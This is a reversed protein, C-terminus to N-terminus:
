LRRKVSAGFRSWIHCAGEESVMCPGVPDLMTCTKEFLACDSPYSQGLVVTHCLCGKPVDSDATDELCVGYKARADFARCSESLFIGSDEVWGIARWFARGMRFVKDMLVQAARNGGPKVYRSYENALGAKGQELMRMIMELAALIDVPEFGAVAVPLHYKAPFRQWDQAGVIVAVHGPALLGDLVNAGPGGLVLAEVAPATLKLATLLSFNSPVQRAFLAAMPAATTEFGVAFLVFEREPEKLALEVADDPSYIIRVDAGDSRADMLSGYQTRVRLMDGFSLVTVGRKAIEIAEGIDHEACVCVPCGPGPILELQEPLLDRLGWEAISREHSGCVNMVKLSRGIAACHRHISAALTDMTKQDRYTNEML